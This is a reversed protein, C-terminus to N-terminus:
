VVVADYALSMRQLKELTLAPLGRYVMILHKHNRECVPMVM